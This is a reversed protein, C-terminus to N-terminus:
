QVIVEAHMAAETSHIRCEYFFTGPTSFTFHFVQGGAIPGSDFLGTPTAGLDLSDVATVTHGVLDNNTWWVTTWPKVTLVKTSFAFDNIQVDATEAVTVKLGKTSLTGFKTRLYVPGLVTGATFATSYKTAGKPLKLTKITTFTKNDQSLQVYLKGAKKLKPSVAGSLTATELPSLESPSIRLSVSGAAAPAPAAAAAAFTALALAAV